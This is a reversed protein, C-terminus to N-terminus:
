PKPAKPDFELHEIYRVGFLGHGIVAKGAMGPTPTFDFQTGGVRERTGDPLTVDVGWSSQALFNARNFKTIHAPVVEPPSFDGFRDVLLILTVMTSSSFTLSFVLVSIFSRRAQPNVLATLSFSAFWSLVPILNVWYPLFKFDWWILIAIILTGIFLLGIWPKNFPNTPVNM